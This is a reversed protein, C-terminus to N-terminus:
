PAPKGAYLAAIRAPPVGLAYLALCLLNRGGRLIWGERRYRGADTMAICGLRRLRRRGIRRIIAVDELLPIDPFGGCADYLKRPVLLGQDGYPLAFVCTRLNAWGAVLRGPLGGERFRLAFCAAAEPATEIHGRVAESWNEGLVTDAHLFLLWPGTAREAGARLQGGRGPPTCVRLAGCAEAVGAVDDRSGGDAFVVERVLGEAAGEALLGLLPGIGAMANLTPIVVSVPAREIGSGTM